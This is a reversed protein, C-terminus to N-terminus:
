SKCLSEALPKEQPKPKDMTKIAIVLVLLSVVCSFFGLIGVAALGWNDAVIGGMVPGGAIGLLMAGSATAALRGQSDLAAATGFIYPLCFFWFIEILYFLGWYFVKIDNAYIAIVVLSNLGFGIVVPLMRGFRINFWTALTAGFIGIVGGSGFIWSLEQQTFNIEVGKRELFVFTSGECINFLFMALAVGGGLGFLKPPALNIAQNTSNNSVGNGKPLWLLMPIALASVLTLLVFVGRYGYKATIYGTSYLTIAGIASFVIQIQGYTRDPNYLSAVVASSAAFTAGACLGASFRLALLAPYYQVQTSLAHFIVAGVAGCIAMRRLSVRGMFPALTLASVAVGLYELTLILGANRASYELETMVAGVLWLGTFQSFNGVVFAACVAILIILANRRTNSM